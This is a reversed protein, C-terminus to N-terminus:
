TSREEDELMMLCRYDWIWNCEIDMYSLTIWERRKQCLKKYHYYHSPTDLWCELDFEPWNRLDQKRLEDEIKQELIKSIENKTNEAQIKISRQSISTFDNFRTKDIQSYPHPTLFHNKCLKEYNERNLKEEKSSFMCTENPGPWQKLNLMFRYSLLYFVKNSNKTKNANSKNM